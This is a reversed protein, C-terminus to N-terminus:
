GDIAGLLGLQAAVAIAQIRNAAGFKRVVNDLHFRVTTAALGSLRAIEADRFGQAALRLCDAERPTLYSAQETAVRDEGFERDFARMFLHGSALLEPQAARLVTAAEDLSQPGLWTVMAIRGKPLMIPVTIMSELGMGAM